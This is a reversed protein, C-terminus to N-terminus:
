VGGGHGSGGGLLIASSVPSKRRWRASRAPCRPARRAEARRRGEPLDRHGTRRRTDPSAAEASPRRCPRDLPHSRTRRFLPLPLPLPLPIHPHASTLSLHTKPPRKREPAQDPKSTPLLHIRRSPHPRHSIPHPSILQSPSPSPHRHRHSPNSRQRSDSQGIAREGKTRSLASGIEKFGEAGGEVSWECQKRV